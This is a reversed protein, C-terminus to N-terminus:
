RIKKNIKVRNKQKNRLKNQVKKYKTLNKMRQDKQCDKNIM